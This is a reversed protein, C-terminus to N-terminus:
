FANSMFLQRQEGVTASPNPVPTPKHRGIILYQGARELELSVSEIKEPKQEALPYCDLVRGDTLIIKGEPFLGKVEKFPEAVISM